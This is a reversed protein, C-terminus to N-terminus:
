LPDMAWFIYKSTIGEEGGREKFGEEGRGEVSRLHHSGLGGGWKKGKM